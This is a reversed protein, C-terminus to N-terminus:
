FKNYPFNSNLNSILYTKKRNSSIRNILSIHHVKLAELQIEAEKMAVMSERLNQNEETLKSCKDESARLERKMREVAFVVIEYEESCKALREQLAAYKNREDLLEQGRKKLSDEAKRLQDNIEQYKKLLLKM